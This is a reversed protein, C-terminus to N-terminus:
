VVKFNALERFFDNLNRQSFVRAIDPYKLPLNNRIFHCWRKDLLVFDYYSVPVVTHLLDIWENGTMKMDENVVTFDIALKYIDETYPQNNRKLKKQKHRRKARALENSNQRTTIVGPSLEDEFSQVMEKYRQPTGEKKLKWLIPSIRFPKLPDVVYIFYNKILEIDCSPNRTYFAGGGPIELEKEALIVRAPIADSFGYDFNDMVEVIENIQIPDDIRALEILTVFSYMITTNSKKAASIFKKRLYSDESLLRWMWVDLYLTPRGTTQEISFGNDAITRYKIM